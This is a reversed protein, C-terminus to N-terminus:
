LNTHKQTNTHKETGIKVTCVNAQFIIWVNPSKIRQRKPSLIGLEPDTFYNKKQWSQKEEVKVFSFCLFQAFIRPYITSRLKNPFYHSSDCPRWKMIWNVIAPLYSTNVSHPATHRPTTPTGRFKKQINLTTM